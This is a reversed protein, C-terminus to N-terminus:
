PIALDARHFRKVRVDRLLRVVILLAIALFPVVIIVKTIGAPGDPGGAPGM